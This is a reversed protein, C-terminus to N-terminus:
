SDKLLKFSNLIQELSPKAADFKDKDVMFILQYTRKMTAGGMVIHWVKQEGEPGNPDAQKLPTGSYVFQWSSEVGAAVTKEDTEIQPSAFRRGIGGYIADKVGSGRDDGELPSNEMNGDVEIKVLVGMDPNVLRIAEDGNCDEEKWAWGKGAPMTIEFGAEPGAFTRKTKNIIGMSPPELHLIFAKWDDALQDVNFGLCRDLEKAFHEGAPGPNMPNGAGEPPKRAIVQFFDDLVKSLNVDREKGDITLKVPKNVPPDTKKKGANLVFEGKANKTYDGRKKFYYVLSWGYPYTMGAQMQFDRLGIRIFRSIPLQGPVQNSKMYQQIPGLRMRPIVIELNGKRDFKFGDGFYCAYGEMWWTPRALYEMETGDCLIHQMQHTCEHALVARTDGTGFAGHFAAVLRDPSANTNESKPRYFGGVGQQDEAFTKFDDNNRFIYIKSQGNWFRKYGKKPDFVQDYARRIQVMFNAYREAVARTSNCRIKYNKDKTEIEFWEGTGELEEAYDRAGKNAQDKHDAERKKADEPSILEKTKPDEKWGEKLKWEREPLWKGDVKKHGLADRAAQNEPELKIAREYAKAQVRPLNQEKAQAALDMCEKATKADAIKKELVEQIAAERVIEKIEGREIRKTGIISGRKVEVVVHEPSEEIIKGEIPPGVKLIVRDARAAEPLLAEAGLLLVLALSITGLSIHNM